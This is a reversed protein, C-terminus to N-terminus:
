TRTWLMSPGHRTPRRGLPLLPAQPPHPPHALEQAPRKGKGRPRPAERLRPQSGEAIGRYPIKAHASGRHDKDALWAAELEDLVGWVWEANKDHVSGPLARAAAPRDAAGAPRPPLAVALDVGHGPSPVTLAPL